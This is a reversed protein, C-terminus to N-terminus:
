FVGPARPSAGANGDLGAARAMVRLAGLGMKQYEMPNRVDPDQEAEIVLWGAYGHAAAVSLVAEFQVAGEIDGPVTFVGGRVAQLFSWGGRRAEGMVVPRVNKTHIHGVRRMHRGLVEGPDGGGLFCHGTDFLLGTASGTVAMLQDIEQPTEVITGMHHHYVMALGQDACVQGVRELDAGFRVWDEQALVPKDGLAMDGTHIANSTECVIVLDCGMAKLLDLHPQMAVVEDRVSRSLLNLSHWGSVLQLGRPGLLAELAVPDDPMKHGMEIGDFGIEAAEDLCQEVSIDAGLTRDDDNSWAIPNTAYRIM